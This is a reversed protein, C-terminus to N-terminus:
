DLCLMEGNNWQITVDGGYPVIPLAPPGRREALPLIEGGYGVCVLIADIQNGSVDHFTVDHGRVVSRPPDRDYEPASVDVEVKQVAIVAGRPYERLTRCHPRPPGHVLAIHFPDRGLLDLKGQMLLDHAGGHVAPRETAQEGMAGLLKGIDIGVVAVGGLALQKLFNRRDSM